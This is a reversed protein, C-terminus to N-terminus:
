ADVHALLLFLAHHRGWGLLAANVPPPPADASGGVVGGSSPATPTGAPSSLPLSTTDATVLLAAAMALAGLLLVTHRTIPAM